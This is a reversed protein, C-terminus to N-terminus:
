VRGIIPVSEKKERKKGWKKQICFKAFKDLFKAFIPRIYTLFFCAKKDIIELNNIALCVFLCVFLWVFCITPFYYNVSQTHLLTWWAKSELDQTRWLIHIFPSSRHCIQLQVRPCFWFGFFLLFNTLTTQHSVTLLNFNGGSV